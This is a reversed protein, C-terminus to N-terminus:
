DFLFMLRICDAEHKKEILRYARLYKRKFVQYQKSDNHGEELEQVNRIKPIMEDFSGAMINAFESCGSGTVGTLAIVSFKNRLNYIKDISNM